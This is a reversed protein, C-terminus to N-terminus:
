EVAGMISYMPMILSLAIFGVGLGMTVIIIPEMMATLTKIRTNVENEYYDALKALNSDLTATQEGVNVMQVLLSPFLKNQSMPKALGQGDYIGEQVDRVAKRIISNGTTHYVIDMIQPLHMGANLLIATIRSFLAMNSEIIIARIMPLKLLFKDLKVHGAPSRFYWIGLVATMVTTGVIHFKYGTVFGTFAILVKTPLPLEAGLDAFLGMLPPMAVTIMLFVVVVALTIIFCPYIMVRRVEKIFATGRELYVIAQKLAEELNGSQEGAKVIRCYIDPFAKPYKSIAQSFSAGERLERILGIIINRFGVSPTKEEILHLASPLPIGSSIMIALQESFTIIDQTKVGFVSPFHDELRSKEKVEQLSLINYGSNTLSEEAASRDRVDLTGTLVDNSQNTYAVYTYAM